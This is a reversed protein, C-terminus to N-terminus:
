RTRNARSEPTPTMPRFVYREDPLPFLRAIRRALLHAQRSEERLGVRGSM